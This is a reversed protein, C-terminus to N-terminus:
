KTVAGAADAPIPPPTTDDPPGGSTDVSIAVEDSYGSLNNSTDVSQVVYYHTGMKAKKMKVVYTYTTQPGTFLVFEINPYPGGPSFGWKVYFGMLDNPTSPMTWSITVDKDKAMCPVAMLCLIIIFLLKKM